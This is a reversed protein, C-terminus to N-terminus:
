VLPGSSITLPKHQLLPEWASSISVGPPSTESPQLIQPLEIIHKPAEFNSIVTLTQNTKITMHM